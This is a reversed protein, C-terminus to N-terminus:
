TAFPPELRLLTYGELLELNQGPAQSGSEKRRYKRRRCYDGHLIWKPIGGSSEKVVQVAVLLDDVPTEKRNPCVRGVLVYAQDREHVPVNQGRLFQRLKIPTSKWPPLFMLASGVNGGSQQDDAVKSPAMDAQQLELSKLTLQHFLLFTETEAGGTPLIHSPFWLYIATPTTAAQASWRHPLDQEISELFSAGKNGNENDDNVVSWSWYLASTTATRGAKDNSSVPELLQLYFGKRALERGKSLDLKWELSSPYYKLQRLIRQMTDHSLAPMSEVRASLPSFAAMGTTMWKYLAQSQILPTHILDSEDQVLTCSKNWDFRSCGSEVEEKSTSVLVQQLHVAVRPEVDDKLEQSQQIYTPLRSEMFSGNTLDHLLPVLENRIRNRLYKPSANSDDERWTWNHDQLYQVLDQKSVVRDRGDDVVGTEQQHQPQVWPRVLYLSASSTSSTASSSSPIAVPFRRTNTDLSRIADMGSLNLLHVGRLSKLLLSEMSDDYHHATLIVGISSRTSQPMTTTSSSSSSPAADSVSGDKHEGTACLTSHEKMREFLRQQRWQRATDQSFSKSIASVSDHENKNEDDKNNSNNDISRDQWLEVHCPINESACLEQVFTADGDSVEGRQQHNFHVVQLHVDFDVNKISAAHTNPFRIRTRTEQQQNLGRSNNIWEQCAHLLAVSDCGGSVGLTLCLPITLHTTTTSTSTIDNPLLYQHHKTTLHDLVVQQLVYEVCKAVTSLDERNQRKSTTTSNSVDEHFQKTTKTTTTSHNKDGGSREKTEEKSSATAYLLTTTSTKPFSSSLMGDLSLRFSTLKSNSSRDKAISVNKRALMAGNNKWPHIEGLFSISLSSLSLRRFRHNITNMDQLLRRRVGTGDDRRFSSSYSYQYHKFNTPTPFTFARVMPTFFRGNGSVLGAM